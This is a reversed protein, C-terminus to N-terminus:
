RTRTRRTTGGHERPIKLASGPGFLVKDEEGNEPKKFLVDSKTLCVAIPIEIKGKGLSRMKESAKIAQCVNNLMDAEDPGVEPKGDINIRSNINRNQLPDVLYM